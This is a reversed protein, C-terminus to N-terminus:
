VCVSLLQWTINRSHIFVRVSQILFALRLCFVCFMFLVALLNYVFVIAKKVHRKQDCNWSHFCICILKMNITVLSFNEAYFFFMNIFKFLKRWKNWRGFM